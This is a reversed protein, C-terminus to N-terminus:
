KTGKDKVGVKLWTNDLEVIEKKWGISAFAQVRSSYVTSM